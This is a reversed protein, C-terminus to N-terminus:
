VGQSEGFSPHLLREALRTGLLIGAEEEGLGKLHHRIGSILAM